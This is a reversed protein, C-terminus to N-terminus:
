WVVDLQAICREFFTLAIYDVPVTLLIFVRWAASLGVLIYWARGYVTCHLMM